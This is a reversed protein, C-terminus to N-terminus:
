VSPNTTLRPLIEPKAPTDSPLALAYADDNNATSCYPDKHDLQLQAAIQAPNNIDPPFFRMPITSDCTELVSNDFNLNIKFHRLANRGLIIDYRCPAAFIRAELTPLVIDHCIEPLTVNSLTIQKDSHFEGAMTVGQIKDTSTPTVSPPLSHRNFWSTRSGSDLLVLYPRLNTKDQLSTALM